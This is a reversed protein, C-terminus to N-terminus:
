ETRAIVACALVCTGTEAGGTTLSVMTNGTGEDDVGDRIVVARGYLDAIDHLLDDFFTLDVCGQADATVNNVLDGAHRKRGHLRVSGHTQRFPNYHQGLSQGGRTADGYTHVHMAHRANRGFGCLNVRVLAGPVGGSSVSQEFAVTGQVGAADPFISSSLSNGFVAVARMLLIFFIFIFYFVKCISKGPTSQRTHKAQTHIKIKEGNRLATSFIFDKPCKAL